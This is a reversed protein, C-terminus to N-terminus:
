EDAWPNPRPCVATWQAPKLPLPGYIHFRNVPCPGPVPRSWGWNKPPGDIAVDAFLTKYDGNRLPTVLNLAEYEDGEDRRLWGFRLM